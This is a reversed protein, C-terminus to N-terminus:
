QRIGASTYEGGDIGVAEHASQLHHDLGLAVRIAWAFASQRVLNAILEFRLSDLDLKLSQSAFTEIGDRPQM